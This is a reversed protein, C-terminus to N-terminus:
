FSCLGTSFTTGFITTSAIDYTVYPRDGYHIVNALRPDRRGMNLVTDRHKGAVLHGGHKLCTSGDMAGQGTKMAFKIHGETARAPADIQLLTAVALIAAM